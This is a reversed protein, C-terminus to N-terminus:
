KDHIIIEVPIVTYEDFSYAREHEQDIKADGKFKYVLMNNGDAVIKGNKLLVWGEIKKAKPKM